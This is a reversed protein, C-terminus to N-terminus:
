YIWPCKNLYNTTIQCKRFSPRFITSIASVNLSTLHTTSYVCVNKPCLFGYWHISVKLSLYGHNGHKPDTLCAPPKDRKKVPFASPNSIYRIALRVSIYLGVICAITYVLLTQLVAMTM